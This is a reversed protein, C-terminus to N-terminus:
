RARITDRIKRFATFDAARTETGSIGIIRLYGDDLMKVWQIVAVSENTKTKRARAVIEFGDGGAIRVNGAREIAIDGLTAIKRIAQRSIKEATLGAPLTRPFSRGVILTPQEAGQVINKSGRTLVVTNGALVFIVRMNGTSGISFPLAALKQDLTLAARLRISRLAIDIAALREAPTIAPIQATVMVTIDDFGVIMMWKKFEFGSYNQVGAILVAPAGDISLTTRSQVAIGKSALAADPMGSVQDYAQAPMEIVLISGSEAASVFGKFKDSPIFGPPPVLGVRSGPVFVPEAIAPLVWLIGLILTMWVVVRM